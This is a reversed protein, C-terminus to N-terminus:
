SIIRIEQFLRAVLKRTGIHQARLHSTLTPAHDPDLGNCLDAVAGYISLQNVSVITRLILEIIEESGDVHISKKGKEKSRLEGRELASTARFIPHGSESFNLMTREATKDWDGDPKNSYTGYWKESGPGLLHGVYWCSDALMIRSLLLIRSVNNQTEENEGHLTKTCQCSSSGVKSNSLNM